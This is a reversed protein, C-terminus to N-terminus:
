LSERRFCWVTDPYFTHHRLFYPLSSATAVSGRFPTGPGPEPRAASDPVVPRTKTLGRLGSSLAVRLGPDQTAVLPVTLSNLM